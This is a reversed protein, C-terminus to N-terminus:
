LHARRGVKQKQQRAGADEVGDMTTHWLCEPAGAPAPTTVTVLNGNADYNNSSVNGLPDTV